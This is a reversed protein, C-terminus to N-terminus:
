ETKFQILLKNLMSIGRSLENALNELSQSHQMNKSSISQSREMTVIIDGASQSELETNEYITKVAENSQSIKEMVAELATRSRKSFLKGQSIEEELAEIGSITQAIAQRILKIQGNISATAQLTREALKRIENAV